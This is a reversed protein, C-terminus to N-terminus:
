AARQYGHILGAVTRRRKIVATLDIPKGSTPLPPRQGRSQHARHGNYHREYHALVWQLHREGYILLYDLCERRLTGV